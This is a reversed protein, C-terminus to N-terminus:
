KIRTKRPMLDRSRWKRFKKPTVEYTVWLETVFFGVLESHFIFDIDNFRFSLRSRFYLQLCLSISIVFIPFRIKVFRKSHLSIIHTHTHTQEHLLSLSVQLDILGGMIPTCLIIKLSNEMFIRQMYVYVSYSSLCPDFSVWVCEIKSSNQASSKVNQLKNTEQLQM